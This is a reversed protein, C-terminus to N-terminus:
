EAFMDNQGVDVVGREFLPRRGSEAIEMNALAQRYYSTKLEIGLAKRNNVVASYSESGVGMFPTLVTEDENSWLAVAREIVDLQLPHVHKEDDAEKCDRFPLVNDARIDDWFASAYRRWITQSYKNATQKGEMGRLKLLNEPMPRAGAYDLLGVPHAVPTPNDGKNRFVLLYDAAACSCRSADEVISKHQLNKAMTRLYVEYPDKWISYRAQYRWGAAEHARIVDGSFDKLSDNGSNGSPIDAVHVASVRGPMTVRALERIVFNYHEFFKQYDFCNSLDRDDSSYNYLGGFPPSYVSLHVKGDPLKQMVEMCDGNYLAYRDTIKQSAVAM